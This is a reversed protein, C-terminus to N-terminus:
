YASKHMTKICLAHCFHSIHVVVHHLHVGTGKDSWFYAIQMTWLQSIWLFSSFIALYASKPMCKICLADCFHNPSECLTPVSAITVKGLM